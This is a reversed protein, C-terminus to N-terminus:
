DVESQPFLGPVDPRIVVVQQDGPHGGLELKELMNPFWDTFQATIFASGPATLSAKGVSAASLPGREQISAFISRSLVQSPSVSGVSAVAIPSREQTPERIPGSGQWIHFGGAVSDM